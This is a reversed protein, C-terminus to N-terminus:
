KRESGGSRGEVTGPLPEVIILPIEIPKPKILEGTIPDIVTQTEPMEKVSGARVAAMLQRIAILQDPPVLVKLDPGELVTTAAAARVAAPKVTPRPTPATPTLMPTTSQALSPVSVPETTPAGPTIVVRDARLWLSGAVFAVACTAAVASWTWLNWFSRAPARDIQQRVKAAFEPSPEISLEARLDALADDLQEDNMPNM